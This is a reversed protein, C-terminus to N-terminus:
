VRAIVRGSLRWFRVGLTTGVVVLGSTLGWWLGPAGGHLAFGLTLAVPFGVCWHAVVNAVFPFRVDGAGRLAGAAVTQVGDFLQFLAAIRMLRAGIAIVRADSTFASVLVEPFAAFVCACGLMFVAGLGIGLMGPRRPSTGAGVAHGVRVATAGSVGLAGMFTFSSIGIAIQHASAVEPGLAGSLLAVLSFIGMEALLQFGPPLGLRYTTRLSVRPTDDKVRRRLAPVLVFALLVFTAISFALGAGLAGLARLGLRPLGVAVLAADGRVLLNSVVLNLVNAVASGWLAPATVRHAQLYTKCSFYAMAAALGPTQGALYLRVRTTVAASVGLPPLTMTLLFAILMLPAFMLLTGRLNSVFGQWARGPEGAGLAQAALPELGTTLGIGVITATFGITRGLGAGALDDVSVRGLVATDVLSM